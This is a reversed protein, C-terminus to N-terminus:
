VKEWNPEDGKKRTYINNYKQRMKWSIKRTREEKNSKWKLKQNAKHNENRM